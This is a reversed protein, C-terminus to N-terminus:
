VEKKRGSRGLTMDKQRKFILVFCASFFDLSYIKHQGIFSEQSHPMDQLTALIGLTLTCWQFSVSKERKQCSLILIAEQILIPGQEWKGNKTNPIQRIQSRTLRKSAMTETLEQPCRGQQIQNTSNRLTKCWRQYMCHNQRGRGCLDRLRLTIPIVFLDWQATLVGFDRVRQVNEM